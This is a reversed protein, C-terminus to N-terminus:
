SINNLLTELTKYGWKLTMLGCIIALLVSVTIGKTLSISGFYTTDWYWNTVALVLGIAAGASFRKILTIANKLKLEPQKLELPLPEM